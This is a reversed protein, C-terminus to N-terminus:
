LKVGIGVRGDKHIRIGVDWGQITCDVMTLGGIRLAKQDQATQGYWDLGQDSAKIFTGLPTYLEAQTKLAAAELRRIEFLTQTGMECVTVGPLHRLTLGSKQGSETAFIQSGVVKALYTGDSHYISYRTTYGANPTSEVTLLPTDDFMVITPVSIFRNSALHVIPNQQFILNNM